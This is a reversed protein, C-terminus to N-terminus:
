NRSIRCCANDRTIKLTADDVHWSGPLPAKFTADVKAHGSREDVYTRLLTGAAQNQVQQFACVPCFGSYQSLPFDTGGGNQGLLWRPTGIADYLYNVELETNPFSLVNYGFGSHAPAYWLGSTDVSGGGISACGPPGFIRQMPESGYSGNLYWDFTMKDADTRVVTAYGVETGQTRTGDWTFRQLPATWALQNAGPAAGQALYWAPTGDELYTYWVVVWQGSGSSLFVGHGSRQPDYYLADNTSPAPGASTLTASIAVDAIAGGSNVPTVYWRGASLNPANL